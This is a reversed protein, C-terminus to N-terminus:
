DKHSIAEVPCGEEAELACDEKGEPVPDAIVVASEDGFDYIDPCADVCLGCSTCLSPDIFTRM